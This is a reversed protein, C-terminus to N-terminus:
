IIIISINNLIDFNTLDTGPKLDFSMVEVFQSEGAKFPQSMLYRSMKMSTGEIMQAYDAVSEDGMFKNMSVDADKMTEWFVIVVYEGKENVASQRKIFGPQKSTYDSEIQKDRNAFDDPNVNSQINFTTVEMITKSNMDTQNNNTQDTSKKTSCSNLILAVAICTLISIHKM